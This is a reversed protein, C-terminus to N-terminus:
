RSLPETAALDTLAALELDLASLGGVDHTTWCVNVQGWRLAIEPHHNRREAMAGIRAVLALGSAFDPTPFSRVLSEL